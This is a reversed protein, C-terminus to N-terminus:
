TLDGHTPRLLRKLDRRGMSLHWRVTMLRLGLQAAIDPLSMGDLEHMVLIARPRPHLTDLAAWVTRKAILAADPGPAADTPVSLMPASRERVARKRWHDRQVNVLVRVLWAEEKSAGAPISPLSQAARLFTEQLLDDADAASATLRRALRYLRLNHADFLEALRDAPPDGQVITLAALSEAGM